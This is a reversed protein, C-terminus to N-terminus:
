RYFKHRYLLYCNDVNHHDITVQGNHAERVSSQTVILMALSRVVLSALHMGFVTVNLTVIAKKAVKHVNIDRQRKVEGCV